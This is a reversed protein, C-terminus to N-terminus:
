RGPTNGAAKATPRMSADRLLQPLGPAALSKRRGQGDAENFGAVPANGSWASRFKRRGQGDAENFGRGPDGAPWRAGSKRRGQGDAENFCTPRCTRATSCFTNGAAKATPRMSATGALAEGVGVGFKRRGQGDAENFGCSTMRSRVTSGYKRRGQGDAENFSSATFSGASPRTM